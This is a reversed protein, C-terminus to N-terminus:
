VLGQARLSIHGERGVIVHDHVTVGLLRGAEAIRQTIQIDARSPQPSGSPHNHVLILATAGVDLARRIVERPHIAAEDVSGDGAHHDLILRNQANLYLVRVREVTLHAMDIHLYDILVCLENLWTEPTWLEPHGEVFSNGCGLQDYMIVARGSEAVRDLLEFYNHTSGPGGHLLIIPSKGEETKGVIRYYTQYGMFPM